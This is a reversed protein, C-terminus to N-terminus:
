NCSPQGYVVWSCNTDRWVIMAPSVRGIVNGNANVCIKGCAWDSRLVDVNRVLPLHAALYDEDVVEGTALECEVWEAAFVCEARFVPLDGVLQTVPEIYGANAQGLHDARTKAVDTYYEASDPPLDSRMAEALEAMHQPPEGVSQAYQAFSPAVPDGLIQSEAEPVEAATNQSPFVHALAGQGECAVLLACVSLLVFSRIIPKM